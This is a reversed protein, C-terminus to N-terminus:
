SSLLTVQTIFIELVPGFVISELANAKPRSWGLVVLSIRRASSIKFFLIYSKARRKNVRSLSSTTKFFFM